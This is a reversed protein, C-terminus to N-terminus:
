RPARVGGWPEHGAAGVLGPDPDAGPRGGQRGPAPRPVPPGADSGAAGPSWRGTPHEVPEDADDRENPEPGGAAGAGWGSRMAVTAAAGAVLLGLLVAAVAILRTRGAADARDGLLRDLEGLAANQLDLAAQRM